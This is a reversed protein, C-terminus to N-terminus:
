SLLRLKPWIKALLLFIKPSSNRLVVVVELVVPQIRIVVYEEWLQRLIIISLIIIGTLCLKSYIYMHM